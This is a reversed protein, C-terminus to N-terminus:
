FYLITYQKNIIQFDWLGSSLIFPQPNVEDASM